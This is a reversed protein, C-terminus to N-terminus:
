LLDSALMLLPYDQQLLCSTLLRQRVRRAASPKATVGSASAPSSFVLFAFLLRRALAGRSVAVNHPCDEETKSLCSPSSRRDRHTPATRNQTWRTPPAAAQPVQAVEEASRIGRRAAAPAFTKTDLGDPRARQFRETAQPGLAATQRSDRHSFRVGGVGHAKELQAQLRRRRRIVASAPPPSFFRRYSFPLRRALRTAASAM